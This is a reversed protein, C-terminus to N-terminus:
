GQEEEEEYQGIDGDRPGDEGAAVLEEDIGGEGPEDPAPREETM